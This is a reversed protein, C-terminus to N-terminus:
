HNFKTLGLKTGANYPWSVSFLLLLGLVQFTTNPLGTEQFSLIIMSIIYKKKIKELNFYLETTPNESRNQSPNFNVIETVRDFLLSGKHVFTHEPESFFNYAKPKTYVKSCAIEQSFIDVWQARLM